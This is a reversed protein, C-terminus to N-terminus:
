YKISRYSSIVDSCPRQTDIGSYRGETKGRLLTGYCLMRRVNNLKEEAVKENEKLVSNLEENKLAPDEGEEDVYSYISYLDDSERRYKLM